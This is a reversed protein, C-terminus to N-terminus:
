FISIGSDPALPETKLTEFKRLHNSPCSKKLVVATSCRSQLLVVDWHDKGAYALQFNFDLYASKNSISM